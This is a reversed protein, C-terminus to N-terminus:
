VRMPMIVAEFSRTSNQVYIPKNSDEPVRMTVIGDEVNKLAHDLYKVKFATSMESKTPKGTFKVSSQYEGMEPNFLRFGIERGKFSMIMGQYEDNTMNMAQAIVVEFDGKAVTIKKGNNRADNLLDDTHPYEAEKFTQVTLSSGNNSFKVADKGMSVAVDSKKHAALFAKLSKTPVMANGVPMMRSLKSCVLRDGDTGIVLGKDADLYVSNLHERKDDTACSTIEAVKLFEEASVTGCGETEFEPIVPFDEGHRVPLSKFKDGIQVMRVTDDGILENADVEQLRMEAFEEKLSSIINKMRRPDVVFNEVLKETKSSLPKTAKELKMRAKVLAQVIGVRDLDQANIFDKALSKLEVNTLTDLAMLFEPEPWCFDPEQTVTIKRHFDTMKLSTHFTAEFDTATIRQNEPDFLVCSVIPLTGNKRAYKGSESLAKILDSKKIRM